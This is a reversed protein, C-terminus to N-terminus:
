GDGKQVPERLKRLTEVYWKCDKEGPRAECIVDAKRLNALSPEQLGKDFICVECMMDAHDGM